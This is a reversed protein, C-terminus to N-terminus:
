GKIQELFAESVDHVMQMIVEKSPFSIKTVAFSAIGHVYLQMNLIYKEAGEPTIGHEKEKTLILLFKTKM